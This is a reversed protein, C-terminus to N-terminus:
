TQYLVVGEGEYKEYHVFYITYGEPDYTEFFKKMGEGKKDPLNVFFTKFEPLVFKSPPLSDLPNKEKKEGEEKPKAQQAAVEKKEEKKPPAVPKVIKQAFKVHGLRAVVEPLKVFRELWASVNPMAKRYGGDLAVQFLPILVNAVYVDAVTTRGGVLSEKGQLHTNLVRIQDKVEKVANNYTETEVPFWGFTAKWITFAHPNVSNITFDVWQDIQADEWQDKGNLHSEGVRAIYRAIAASEVLTGEKTELVPFKGTISKQKWEKSQHEEHPVTVEEVQIKAL